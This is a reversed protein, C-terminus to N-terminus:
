NGWVYVIADNVWGFFAKVGEGFGLTLGPLLGDCGNAVAGEIKGTQYNYGGVAQGIFTTSLGTIGAKIGSEGMAKEIDSPSTYTSSYPDANNLWLTIGTGTASGVAGGWFNGAPLRSAASQIISGTMGGVYGNYYSDGNAENAIGGNIGALVAGLAAGAFFIAVPAATGASVASVAVVMATISVVLAVGSAVKAATEFWEAWHGSPDSLNVPNNLCYAFLNSETPTEGEGAVITDANIFRGVVPDYYRSQLYYFGTENDYIYGRYRLPNLNMVQEDWSSIASSSIPRGWTDYEYTIPTGYENALGVVDGQLNTVYFYTSGGYTLYIPRGEADYYFKLTKVTTGNDISM